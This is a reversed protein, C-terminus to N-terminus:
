WIVVREDEPLYMADEDGIDFTEYFEPMNRAPQVARVTAPSHVDSIVQYELAEPRTEERWITATSIFFREGQSFGDIDGPDGEADLEIQLADWAVQLGGLDAINEGITNRGEVFLDPAVEIADFQDVIQDTLDEFAEADEDTYWDRLNGESDFQSGSDDFGHTIEHGIVMGVGGYNVAADAEYDFYPAQLIAAPFVIENNVSNYYANVTQVSIDWATRDVDEGYRALGREATAREAALVSEGYVRGLSSTAYSQWQDPYGVKVVMADLKALAEERAEDSLWPNDELRVRFAAILDDVLSEIRERAEPPFFGDVYRQGIADGYLRSSTNTVREEVPRPTDTGSYTPGVFDFYVQYTEDDLYPAFQMFVESTLWARVVEIPTDDLIEDLARLQRGETTTVEDADSLGLGTLYADWDLFKVEDAIDDIELPEVVDALNESEDVYYMEDGFRKELEFIDSAMDGAEDEDMGSLVLFGAVATRYADQQDDLEPVDQYYYPAELGLYPSGVYVVYESSDLFSQDVSLGAVAGLGYRTATLQYAALSEDDDIRAIQALLPLIPSLGAEERAGADLGQEYLRAVKWEDSGAVLTEDAILDEIILILQGRTLDQLETFVGFDSEDPQLETEDMWGGNAFGYFDDAPDVDLDMDDLDIGVADGGAGPTGEGRAAQAISGGISGSGLVVIAVVLTVFLRCRLLTM